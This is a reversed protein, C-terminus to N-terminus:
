CKEHKIMLTGSFTDKSFKKVLIGINFASMTETCVLKHIM